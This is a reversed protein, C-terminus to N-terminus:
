KRSRLARQPTPEPTALAFPASLWPASPPTGPPTVPPPMPGTPAPPVPLSESSPQSLPGLQRSGPRSQDTRGKRHEPGTLQREQM